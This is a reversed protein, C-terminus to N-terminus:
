FKMQLLSDVAVAVSYGEVLKNDCTLKTVAVDHEEKRM